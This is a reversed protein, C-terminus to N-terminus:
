FCLDEGDLLYMLYQIKCANHGTFEDKKQIFEETIFSVRVVMSMNESISRGDRCTFVCLKKEKSEGEKKIVPNILATSDVLMLRRYVGLNASVMGSLKLSNVTLRMMHILELVDRRQAHKDSCWDYSKQTVKKYNMEYRPLDCSDITTAKTNFRSDSEQPFYSHKIQMSAVIFLVSVVLEIAQFM